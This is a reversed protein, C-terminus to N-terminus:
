PAKYEHSSGVVFYKDASFSFARPHRVRIIAIISPGNVTDVYGYSPNTYTCPFGAPSGPCGTELRAFELIQLADSSRFLNPQIPSNNENFHLNQRLTTLLVNDSAASFVIRGERALVEKDVQMAADHTALDLANKLRLYSTESMHNDVQWLWLTLCIVSTFLLFIGWKM